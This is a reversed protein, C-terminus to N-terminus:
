DKKKENSEISARSEPTAPFSNGETGILQPVLEYASVKEKELIEADQEFGPRISEAVVGVLAADDTAVKKVIKQRRPNFRGLPERYAEISNRNLAIEVDEQLGDLISLFKEPTAEELPKTHIADRLRGISTHLVILESVLPRAIHVMLNNRYQQLEDHLRDIQLQKASDRALKADFEALIREVGKEITMEIGMVVNHADASDILFKQDTGDSSTASDASEDIAPDDTERVSNKANVEAESSPKELEQSVANERAQASKPELADQSDVPVSVETEQRHTTANAQKPMNSSEPENTM